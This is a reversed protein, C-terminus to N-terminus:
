EYVGRYSGYLRISHYPIYGTSTLKTRPRNTAPTTPQCTLALAFALAAPAALATGELIPEASAQPPSSPPSPLIMAVMLDSSGALLKGFASSSSSSSSPTTDAVAFEEEATAAAAVVAAPAASVEAAVEAATAVANL